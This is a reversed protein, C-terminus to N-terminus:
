SNLPQIHSLILEALICGLAWMDIKSNYSTMLAVEPARYPRTTINKTLKDSDFDMHGHTFFDNLINVGM